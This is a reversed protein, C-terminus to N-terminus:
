VEDAVGRKPKYLLSGDETLYLIFQDNEGIRLREVVDNVIRLYLSNGYRQVKVVQIIELRSM